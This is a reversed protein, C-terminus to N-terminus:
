RSVVLSELCSLLLMCGVLRPCLTPELLRPLVMTGFLRSFVNISFGRSFWPDYRGRFFWQNTCANRPGHIWFLYRFMLFGYAESIGEISVAESPGKITFAEPPGHTLESPGYIGVAEHYVSAMMAGLLSLRGIPVMPELYRPLVM